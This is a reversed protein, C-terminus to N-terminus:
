AQVSVAVTGGHQLHDNLGAAAEGEGVGGEGQLQSAYGDARAVDSVQGQQDARFQSRCAISLRHCVPSPLQRGLLSRGRWGHDSSDLDIAPPQKRSRRAATGSHMLRLVLFVLDGTQDSQGAGPM